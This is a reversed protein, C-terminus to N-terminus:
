VREFRVPKVLDGLGPAPGECEGGQLDWELACVRDEQNRQFALLVYPLAMYLEMGKRSADDRSAPLFSWTDYHYHRLKATQRPLSNVQFGLLEPNEGVGTETGTLPYVRITIKFGENTYTGAYDALERTRTGLVRNAEWENLLESWRLAARDASQKAYKHLEVRPQMDFLEQCLTQAILDTPDGRSQASNALVVIASTTAPFTYFAALFGGFEGYHALALRPTSDKGIVPPDDLLGSNPGISGLWRSPITHRFWGMGYSNEGLGNELILPRHACRTFSIGPLLVPSQGRKAWRLMDNVTSRVFGAGAQVSGDFCQPDRLPLVSGGDLVSYGTAVNGDGPYEAESTCTRTLGLPGFVKEKLVTGTSKDCVKRIVEGVVGMMCNNYLFRSRFDYVAPLRASVAVQDPGEGYFEDWFGMVAHDIPALGTGHSCLDALTAREGVAADGPTVFDPLYHSVPTDWSLAGEQVLRACTASVFAKSCSAILYLTDSNAEKKTEVDAYGESHRFIVQGQHLVGCSISPTGFAEKIKKIQDKVPGSDLDPYYLQM